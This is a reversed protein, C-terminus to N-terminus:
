LVSDIRIKPFNNIESNLNLNFVEIDSGKLLDEIKQFDNKFNHLKKKTQSAVQRLYGKHWHTTKGDIAINLDYGLLNIKTYGLAIALMIAGAGSNTAGYIGANVDYSIVPKVYRPVVVVDSNFKLSKNTRLVYKPGTFSKWAAKMERDEYEDTHGGICMDYLRRDMFYMANVNPLMLAKNVGITFYEKWVSPNVLKLSPGGGLIVCSQNKQSNRPVMEPTPLPDLTHRSIRILRNNPYGM